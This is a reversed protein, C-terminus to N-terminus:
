WSFYVQHKRNRGAQSYLGFPGFPVLISVLIPGLPESISGLLELFAGGFARPASKAVRPPGQPAEPREQTARPANQSGFHCWFPCWCPALMTFFVIFFGDGFLYSFCALFFRRLDCLGGGLVSYCRWIMTFCQIGLSFVNKRFTLLLFGFFHWLSWFHLWFCALM